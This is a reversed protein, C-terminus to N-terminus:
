RKIGDEKEWGNMKFDHEDLFDQTFGTNVMDEPTTKRLPPLMGKSEMIFLLDEATGKDNPGTVGELYDVLESIMESRKM